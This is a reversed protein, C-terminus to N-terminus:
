FDDYKAYSKALINAEPKFLEREIKFNKAEGYAKAKLTEYAIVPDIKQLLEFPAPNLARENITYFIIDAGALLVLGLRDLIYIEAVDTVLHPLTLNFVGGISVFFVEPAGYFRVIDVIKTDSRTLNMEESIDATGLVGISINTLVSGISSIFRDPSLIVLGNPVRITHLLNESFNKVSKQFNRTTVGNYVISTPKLFYKDIQRAGKITQISIWRSFATENFNVKITSESEPLFDDDDDIEAFATANFFIFIGACWFMVRRCNNAAEKAYAIPLFNCLFRRMFRPLFGLPLRQPFGRLFKEFFFSPVRHKQTLYRM